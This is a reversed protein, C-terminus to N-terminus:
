NTFTRCVPLQSSTAVKPLPEKQILYTIGTYFWSEDEIEGMCTAKPLRYLNGHLSFCKKLFFNYIGDIGAAKWDSLRSVIKLFEQLSPFIEEPEPIFDYLYRSYDKSETSIPTWMTEWFSRVENKEISHEVSDTVTLGRYFKSRYLEFCVNDKRFKKRSAYTDLKGQFVVAKQELIDIAKIKDEALELILNLERM